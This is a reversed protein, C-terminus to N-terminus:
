AATPIGHKTNGRSSQLRRKLAFESVFALGLGTVGMITGVVLAKVEFGNEASLIPHLLWLDWLNIYSDSFGSTGMAALFPAPLFVLVVFVCFQATRATKAGLLSASTLRGVGWFFTWFGLAYVLYNLFKAGLTDGAYAQAAAMGGAVAFIEGLLFPLGGAPTGDLIRKPSFLGNPWFRREGEYGYCTIFPLVPFLLLLIWNMVIGAMSNAEISAGPIHLGAPAAIAGLAAMYLLGHIRLGYVEKGGYPSLIAGAALLALKSVLLAFIVTFVINPVETTGVTTYSSSTEMVLFPNLTALWSMELGRGGPGFGRSFASISGIMATVFSYLIVFGYSWLIASTPKPALTGLFLAVSTFILAHVSLLIYAGLVDSWSAGGLVVSAATVPLSLVLLMWTYRYASLMKGVLLYKPPVPASFVLDLSRRQREQVIATASLAPTILVVMTGLMGMVTRYFNRLTGQAQVVSMTSSTNMSYFLLAAAILALLYLGFVMPGKNGRMGSRYDRATQANDLYTRVQERAWTM